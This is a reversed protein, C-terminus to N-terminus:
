FCLALGAVLFGVASALSSGSGSVLGFDLGAKRFCAGLSCAGVFGIADIAGGFTALCFEVGLGAGLGAVEAGALRAAGTSFLSLLLEAAAVSDSRRFGLFSLVFDSSAFGLSADAGFFAGRLSSDRLGAAYICSPDIDITVSMCHSTHCIQVGELTEYETAIPQERDLSKAHFEAIM